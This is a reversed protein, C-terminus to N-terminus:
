SCTTSSNWQMSPSDATCNTTRLDHAGVRLPFPNSNMRDYVGFVRKVDQETQQQEVIEILARSVIAKSKSVQVLSEARVKLANTSAKM